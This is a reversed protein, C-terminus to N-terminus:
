RLKSQTHSKKNNWPGATQVTTLAPSLTETVKVFSLSSIKQETQTM